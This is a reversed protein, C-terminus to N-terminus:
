FVGEEIQNFAGHCNLLGPRLVLGREDELAARLVQFDLDNRM